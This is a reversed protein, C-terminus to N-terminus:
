DPVAGVYRAPNGAVIRNAPVDRTVVSGLGVIANDGITVGKLISADVGVWVNRGITVPRAPSAGMGDRRRRSTHHYDTDMIRGDGVLGDPGVVVRAAASIRTGNLVTRAGIEIVADRGLTYLVTRRMVSVNEGLVVTGAGTIELRDDLSLGAGGIM